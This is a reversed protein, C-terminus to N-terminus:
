TSNESRNLITLLSLLAFNVWCICFMKKQSLLTGKSDKHLNAKWTLNSKSVTFLRLKCHNNNEWTKQINLMWSNFYEAPSIEVNLTIMINSPDQLFIRLHPWHFLYWVIRKSSTVSQEMFFCIINTKHNAPLLPVILSFNADKKSHEHPKQTTM